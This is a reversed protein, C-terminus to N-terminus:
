PDLPRANPDLENMVGHRCFTARLELRDILQCLTTCEAPPGVAWAGQAAGLQLVLVGNARAVHLVPTRLAAAGYILSLVGV